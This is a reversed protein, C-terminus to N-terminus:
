VCLCADVQLRNVNSFKQFLNFLLCLCLLALLISLTEREPLLNEGPHTSGAEGGGTLDEYKEHSSSEQTASHVACGLQM